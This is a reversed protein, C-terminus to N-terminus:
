RDKESTRSRVKLTERKGVKRRPRPVIKAGLKSMEAEKVLMSTPPHAHVLKEIEELGCRPELFENKYVGTRCRRTITLLIWGDWLPDHAKVLQLRQLKAIPGICPVNRAKQRM